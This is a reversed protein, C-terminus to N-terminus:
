TRLWGCRVRLEGEDAGDNGDSGGHEAQPKIGPPTYCCSARICETGAVAMLRCAAVELREAPERQRRAAEVLGITLRGHCQRNAQRRCRMWPRGCGPPPTRRSTPSSRITPLPLSPGRTWRRWLRATTPRASWWMARCCCASPGTLQCRGTHLRRTAPVS